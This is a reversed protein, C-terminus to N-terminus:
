KIEDYRFEVVLTKVRFAGQVFGRVPTIKYMDIGEPTCEGEMNNAVIKAFRDEDLRGQKRPTNFQITFFGIRRFRRNPAAGITQQFMDEIEASVVVYPDVLDNVQDLPKDNLPTEDYYITVNQTTPDAEWFTKFYGYMSDTAQEFDM